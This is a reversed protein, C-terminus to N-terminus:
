PLKLAIKEKLAILEIPYIQRIEEVYDRFRYYGEEYNNISAIVYKSASKYNGIQYQLRALYYNADASKDYSYQLMKKLNTEAKQLDGSEYYAIGPYLFSAPEIWEEGNEWPEVSIHTEFYNISNKYDSMGIYALGRWYHVSQGQPADIFNPTLTDSANFDAIAKEYNRFFYLHLYGRWAQWAV